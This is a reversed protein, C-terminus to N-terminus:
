PRTCIPEKFPLRYAHTIRPLIVELTAAEVPHCDRAPLFSPEPYGLKFGARGHAPIAIQTTPEYTEHKSMARDGHSGRAIVRPFGTVSCAASGENSIDFQTFRTGAAPQTFRETLSLQGRSCPDASNSASAAGVLSPASPGLALVMAWLASALAFTAAPGTKRTM